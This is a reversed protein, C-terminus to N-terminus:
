NVTLLNLAKLATLLNFASVLLTQWRSFSHALPVFEHIYQTNSLMASIIDNVSVNQGAHVLYLYHMVYTTACCFKICLPVLPDKYCSYPLSYNVSFYIISFIKFRFYVGLWHSLSIHLRRFLKTSRVFNFKEGVDLNKSFYSTLLDCFCCIQVNWSLMVWIIKCFPCENWDLTVHLPPKVPPLTRQIEM